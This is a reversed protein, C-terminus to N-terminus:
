PWDQKESAARFVGAEIFVKLLRHDVHHEKAELQLIDLAREASLSKKYPRDPATLADYIDSITMMRTQLAIEDGRLGMPYGTGDLKEHHGHAIDPVHALDTTWPIQILFRYTHSVHSEIEMRERQDLNGRRVSLSLLENEELFSMQQGGPIRIRKRAIEELREFNSSAVVSPENAARIASLMERLEEMREGMESDLYMEYEGFAGAGNAKLYKLKRQLYHKEVMQEISQFRTEILQLEHDYLKKSKVLVKERVGVKGFDHLLSAYRIERIQELSFKIASFEGDSLRDVARALGTTFEAVRFSHGSTTPDRQEIATVAATVFGEFLNNIDQILINNLVAVAAQGALSQVLEVSRDDFPVVLDSNLEEITLPRPINKRKRNILQIVGIPNGHHDKMPIVMMSRTRYNHTRDFEVNFHFGEAGTLEYVDAIMLPQGSLAVHGAISNSDIPLLFENANLALASKKFRLHTAKSGPKGREVIYISGGDASALQRAHHLILDILRDFDRETSLAQGVDTLRRMEQSSLALRSQLQLKEYRTRLAAFSNEVLMDITERPLGPPAALQVYEEPLPAFDARSRPAQCLLILKLDVEPRSRIWDWLQEARQQFASESLVAVALFMGQDSDLAGAMADDLPLCLRGNSPPPPYADALYLLAERAASKPATETLM